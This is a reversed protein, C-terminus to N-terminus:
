ILMDGYKKHAKDIPLVELIEVTKEGEMIDYFATYERSIHLRYVLDEQVKLREKDGKGRGPYPNEELKELNDKVIRESKDDLGEIYELEDPDIKLLYESM